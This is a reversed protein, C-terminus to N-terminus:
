QDRTSGNVLSIIWNLIIILVSISLIWNSLILAWLQITITKWFDIVDLM